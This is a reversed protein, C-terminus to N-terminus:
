GGIMQFFCGSITHTHTDKQEIVQQHISSLSHIQFLPTATTKCMCFVCVIVMLCFRKYYTKLVGFLKTPKVHAKLVCVQFSPTQEHRNVSQNPCPTRHLVQLNMRSMVVPFCWHNGMSSGPFWGMSHKFENYLGFIIGYIRGDNEASHDEQIQKCPCKISLRGMNSEFLWPNRHFTSKCLLERFINRVNKGSCIM